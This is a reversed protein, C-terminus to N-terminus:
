EKKKRIEEMVNLQQQKPKDKRDHLMNQENADALM